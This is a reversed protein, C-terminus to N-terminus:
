AIVAVRNLWSEESGFRDNVSNRKITGKVTIEKGIPFDSIDKSTFFKIINDGNFATVIHSAYRESYVIQEVIIKLLHKTGEQGIHKSLHARSNMRENINERALERRYSAPLSSMVALDYETVETKVVIGSVRDLFENIATGGNNGLARFLLGKFHEALKNGFERDEDIITNLDALFRRALVKNPEKIIQPQNVADESDIYSVQITKVYEQKNVRDAAAVAVWALSIPFTVQNKAQRSKYM